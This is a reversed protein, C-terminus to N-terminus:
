RRRPTRAKPEPAPFRQVLDNLAYEGAPLRQRGAPAEATDYLLTIVFRNAEEASRTMNWHPREYGERQLTQIVRQMLPLARQTEARLPKDIMVPGENRAWARLEAETFSGSEHIDQDYPNLWYVVETERADRWRPSLAFWRKGAAKLTAVLDPMVEAAKQDLRHERQDEELVRQAVLPDVRSARVLTLGGVFARTLGENKVLKGGLALDHQQIAQAMKKLRDVYGATRVHVLFGQEDWSAAFKERHQAQQRERDNSSTLLSGGHYFHCERELYKPLASGPPLPEHLNRGQVLLWAAPTGDSQTYTHFEFVSPVKTNTRDKLGEHFVRGMGLAERLPRVGIEHETCADGLLSFGIVEGHADLHWGSNWGAQRM